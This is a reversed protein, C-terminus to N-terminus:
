KLPGGEPAHLGKPLLGQYTLYHTFAENRYHTHVKGLPALNAKPQDNAM